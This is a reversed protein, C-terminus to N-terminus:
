CEGELGEGSGSEVSVKLVRGSGSEVSVKLVRGVELNLM